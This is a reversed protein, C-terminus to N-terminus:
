HWIRVQIDDVVSTRINDFASGHITWYLGTVEWIFAWMNGSYPGTYQLYRTWLNGLVTRHTEWYLGAYQKLVSGHTHLFGAPLYRNLTLFIVSSCLSDPRQELTIKSVKLLSKGAPFHYQFIIPQNSVFYLFLCM